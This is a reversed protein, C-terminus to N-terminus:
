KEKFETRVASNLLDCVLEQEWSKILNEEQLGLCVFKNKIKLKSSTLKQRQFLLKSLLTMRRSPVLERLKEQFNEANLQKSKLAFQKIKM